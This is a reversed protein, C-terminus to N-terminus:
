RTSTPQEHLRGEAGYDGARFAEIWQGNLTTMEQKPEKWRLLKGDPLRVISADEDARKQAFAGDVMGMLQYNPQNNPMNPTSM